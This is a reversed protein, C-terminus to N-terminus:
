LGQEDGGPHPGHSRTADRVAGGDGGLRAIFGSLSCHLYIHFYELVPIGLGETTLKLGGKEFDHICLLALRQHTTFPKM